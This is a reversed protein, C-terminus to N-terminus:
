GSATGSHEAVSVQIMLDWPLLPGQTRPGMFIMTGVVMTVMYNVIILKVVLDYNGGFFNYTWWNYYSSGHLKVM